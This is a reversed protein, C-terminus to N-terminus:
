LKVIKEEVYWDWEFCHHNSETAIHMYECVYICVCKHTHIYIYNFNLEIPWIPGKWGELLHTHYLNLGCNNGPITSPLFFFMAADVPLM